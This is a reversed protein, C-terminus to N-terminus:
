KETERGLSNNTITASTEVSGHFSSTFCGALPLAAALVLLGLLLRRAPIRV